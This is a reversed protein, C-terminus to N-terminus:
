PENVSGATRDDDLFVDSLSDLVAVQTAITTIDPVWLRGGLVVWEAISLTWPTTAVRHDGVHRTSGDIGLDAVGLTDLINQVTVERTTFVIARLVQNNVLTVVGGLGITLSGLFSRM